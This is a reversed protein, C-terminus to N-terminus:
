RPVKKLHEELEKELTELRRLEGGIHKLLAAWELHVKKRRGGQMTGARNRHWQELLQTSRIDRRM